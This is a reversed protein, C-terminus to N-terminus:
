NRNQGSQSEFGYHSSKDDSTDADTIVVMGGVRAPARLCSPWKVALLFPTFQLHAATQVCISETRSGALNTPWPQVEPEEGGEGM